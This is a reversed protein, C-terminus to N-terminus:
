LDKRRAATAVARAKQALLAAHATTAADAASKAFLKEETATGLQDELQAVRKKQTELAKQADPDSAVPETKARKAERVDSDGRARAEDAEAKKAQRADKAAGFTRVRLFPLSKICFYPVM